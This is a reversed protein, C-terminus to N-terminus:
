KTKDSQWYVTRNSEIYKIARELTHHTNAFDMQCWFPFWLRWVQCEYGLYNDGVVRYKKLKM